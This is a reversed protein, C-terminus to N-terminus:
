YPLHLIHYIVLKTILSDHDKPTMHVPNMEFKPGYNILEELAKLNTEKSPTM